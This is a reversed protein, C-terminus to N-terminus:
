WNAERKQRLAKFLKIQEETIPILDAEMQNDGLVLIDPVAADPDSAFEIKYNWEFYAENLHWDKAVCAEEFAGKSREWGPLHLIVDCKWLQEIIGARMLALSIALISYQVVSLM